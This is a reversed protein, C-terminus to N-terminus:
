LSNNLWSKGTIKFFVHPNLIYIQADNWSVEVVPHDDSQEFGPKRWEDNIHSGMARAFRAYEGRTVPYRGLYFSPVQVRHQPGENGNRGQEGDPSGMLFSGGHILVDNDVIAQLDPNKSVYRRTQSSSQKPESTSKKTTPKYEDAAPQANDGGRRQFIFRADPHPHLDPNRIVGYRPLHGDNASVYARAQIHLEDSLVWPKSTILQM